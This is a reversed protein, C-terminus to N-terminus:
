QLKILKRTSITGKETITIFYVGQRFDSCSIKVQTVSQKKAKYLTVGNLNQITITGNIPTRDTKEVVFEDSCPNPYIKFQLSSANEHKNVDLFLKNPNTKLITGGSGVIYGCSASTFVV